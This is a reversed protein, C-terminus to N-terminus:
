LINKNDTSHLVNLLTLLNHFPLSVRTSPDKNSELFYLQILTIVCFIGLVLLICAFLNQVVLFRHAIHVCLKREGEVLFEHLRGMIESSLWM